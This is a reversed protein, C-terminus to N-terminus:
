LCHSTRVLCMRQIEPSMREQVMRVATTVDAVTKVPLQYSTDEVSTRVSSTRTNPGALLCACSNLKCQSTGVIAQLGGYLCGTGMAFEHCCAPNFLQTSADTSACAIHSWYDVVSLLLGSPHFPGCYVHPFSGCVGLSLTPLEVRESM